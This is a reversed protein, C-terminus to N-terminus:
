GFPNGGQAQVSATVAALYAAYTERQNWTFLVTRSNNAIAKQAEATAIRLQGRDQETALQVYGNVLRTPEKSQVKIVDGLPIVSDRAGSVKGMLKRKIEARDAYLTVTAVYGKFVQPGAQPSPEGKSFDYAM